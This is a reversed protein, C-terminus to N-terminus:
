IVYKNEGNFLIHKVPSIFIRLELLLVYLLFVFVFNHMHSLCVYFLFQHKVTGNHACIRWLNYVCPM